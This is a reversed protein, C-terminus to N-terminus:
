DVSLQTIGGSEFKADRLVFPDSRLVMNGKADMTVALPSAGGGVFHM